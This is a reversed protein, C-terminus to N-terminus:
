FNGIHGYLRGNNSAYDEKVDRSFRMAMMIVMVM